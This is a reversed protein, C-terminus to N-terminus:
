IIENGTELYGYNFNLNGLNSLLFLIGVLILLSGLGDFQAEDSWEGKGWSRRLKCNSISM